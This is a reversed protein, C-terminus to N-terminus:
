NKDIEKIKYGARRMEERLRERKREDDERVNAIDKRIRLQCAECMAGKSILKGCSSCPYQLNPADGISIRGERIFKTIQRISVGTAESLEYITAHRHERLYESCRDYQEEVKQLCAPCVDHLSRNFLRGCHPCNALKLDM